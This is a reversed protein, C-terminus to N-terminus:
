PDVGREVRRADKIRERRRQNHGASLTVCFRGIGFRSRGKQIVCAASGNAANTTSAVSYAPASM